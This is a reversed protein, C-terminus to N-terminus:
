TRQSSTSTGRHTEEQRDLFTKFFDAETTAVSEKRMAVTKVHKGFAESKELADKIAGYITESESAVQCTQEYLRRTEAQRERAQTAAEM